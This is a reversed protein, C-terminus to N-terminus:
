NGFKVESYRAYKEIFIIENKDNFMISLVYEFLLKELVKIKMEFNSEENNLIKFNKKIVYSKNKKTKCYPELIEYEGIDIKNMYIRRIQACKASLYYKGNDKKLIYGDVAIMIKEQICFCDSPIQANTKCLGFFTFCFLFFTVKM